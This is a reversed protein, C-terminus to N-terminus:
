QSWELTAESVLNQLFTLFAPNALYSLPYLCRHGIRVVQTEYGSASVLSSSGIGEHQGRVQVDTYM